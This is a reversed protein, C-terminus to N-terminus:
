MLYRAVLITSEELLFAHDAMSLNYSDLIESLIFRFNKRLQPQIM